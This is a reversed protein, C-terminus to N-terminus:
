EQGNPDGEVDLRAGGRPAERYANDAPREAHRALKAEVGAGADRYYGPVLGPLTALHREFGGDVLQESSPLTPSVRRRTHALSLRANWWWVSQGHPSFAGLRVRVAGTPAHRVDVAFRLEHVQPPVQAVAPRHVSNKAGPETVSLELVLLPVLQRSVLVLEEDVGGELCRAGHEGVHPPTFTPFAEQGFVLINEPWGLFSRGGSGLLRPSVGFAVFYWAAAGRRAEHTGAVVEVPVEDGSVAANPAGLQPRRTRTLDYGNPKPLHAVSLYRQEGLTRRGGRELLVQSRVHLVVAISKRGLSDRTQESAINGPRWRDSGILRRPTLRLEAVFRIRSLVLSRATKAL